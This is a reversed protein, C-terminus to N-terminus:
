VYRATFESECVSYKRIYIYTFNRATHVLSPGHTCLHDCSYKKTYICTSQYLSIHKDLAKNM